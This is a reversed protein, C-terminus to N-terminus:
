NMCQMYEDLLRCETGDVAGQAFWDLYHVTKRPSEKGM